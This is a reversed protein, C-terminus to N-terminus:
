GCDDTCYYDARLSAGRTDFTKDGGLIGPERWDNALLEEGVHPFYVTGECGGRFESTEFRGKMALDDRLAGVKERGDITVEVTRYKGKLEVSVGSEEFPEMFVRCIEYLKEYSASSNLPLTTWIYFPVAQDTVYSARLTEIPLDCWWEESPAAEYIQSFAWDVLLAEEEDFKGEIKPSCDAQSEAEARNAEDSSPSVVAAGIFVAVAVWFWM